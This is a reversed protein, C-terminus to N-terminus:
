IAFLTAICRVSAVKSSDGCMVTRSAQDCVGEMRAVAVMGMWIYMVVILQHVRERLLLLEVGTM